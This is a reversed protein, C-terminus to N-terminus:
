LLSIGRCIFSCMVWGASTFHFVKNDSDPVLQFENLVVSYFTTGQFSYDAAPSWLYTEITDIATQLAARAAAYSGATARLVGAIVLPRGRTGLWLSVLGHGGPFGAFQRVSSRPQQHVRIESGFITTLDTAM